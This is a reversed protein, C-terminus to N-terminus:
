HPAVLSLLHDAKEVKTLCVAGPFLKSKYSPFKLNFLTPKQGTFTKLLGQTQKSSFQDNSKAVHLCCNRHNTPVSSQDSVAWSPIPCCSNLSRCPPTKSCLFVSVHLRVLPPSIPDHSAKRKGEKRRFRQKPPELPTLYTLAQLKKWTKIEMIASFTNTKTFRNGLM